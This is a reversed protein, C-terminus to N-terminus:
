VFECARGLNRRVTRGLDKEIIEAIQVVNRFFFLSAEDALRIALALGIDYFTEARSKRAM